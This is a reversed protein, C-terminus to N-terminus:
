EFTLLYPGVIDLIYLTIFTDPLCTFIVMNVNDKYIPLMNVNDKNIPLM